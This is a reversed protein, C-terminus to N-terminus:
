SNSIMQIKNHYDIMRKLVNKKDKVITDHITKDILNIM